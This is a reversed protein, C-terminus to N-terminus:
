RLDPYSAYLKELAREESFAQQHSDILFVTEGSEDLVGWRDDGLHSATPECVAAFWYQNYSWTATKRRHALALDLVELVHKLDAQIELSILDLALMEDLLQRYIRREVQDVQSPLTLQEPLDAELQLLRQRVDENRMTLQHKPPNTASSHKHMEARISFDPTDNKM